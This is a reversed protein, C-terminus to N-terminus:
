PEIELPIWDDSVRVLDRETESAKFILVFNNSHRKTDTFNFREIGDINMSYAQAAEYFTQSNFNEPGVDEVAKRIVDLMIFLSSGIALYGSGMKRLSEAEGPSHNDYLIQKTLDIMQGQETWWRSARVFLSGDMENWLDADDILGMFAAHTDACIFKADHGAARYEKVLTVPITVPVVYDADKLAEVEAGWQLTFNSLYGGIWEFQDPHAEAYEEAALFFCDTYSDTWGAGGIKAPGKTQYDWDNEAIWKLITYADYSPVAGVNFIYGPPEFEGVCVSPTFLVIKDKNVRSKLAV